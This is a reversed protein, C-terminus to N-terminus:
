IKTDKVQEDRRQNLVQQIINNGGGQMDRPQDEETFLDLAEREAKIEKAKNLLRSAEKVYSPLIENNSYVRALAESLRILSELQRVTIRTAAKGYKLADNERLKLYEERLAKSSEQTFVPKYIARVYQIYRQIEKMKFEESQVAGQQNMHLNVIYTAIQNDM